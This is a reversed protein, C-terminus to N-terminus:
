RDVQARIFGYSSRARRSSSCYNTGSVSHLVSNNDIVHVDKGLAAIDTLDKHKQSFSIFDGNKDITSVSIVSNSSSLHNVGDM